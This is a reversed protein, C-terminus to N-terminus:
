VTPLEFGKRQPRSFFSAAQEDGVIKENVADWQLPRGLRCALNSLHCVHMSLINERADAIPRGGERVCTFFNQFHGEVPMGNWLARYDDDTFAKWGGEEYTKGAIRARNVHIKGKTGELLIGNGDKAKDCLIFDTGDSFKMDLHFTIPTNFINEKVPYGDRYDTLFTVNSPAYSVPMQEPTQRNLIWLASDVHHAGWDTVRGGSYQFWWRFMIHCNSYHPIPAKTFPNKDDASAMYDVWPAQGLWLNWDLSEPVEARSLEPSTRGQDVICTTRFVDGLLGKRVMLAATAFQNRQSRQQTGVQFVKGYKEVARRILLNEELTLTLPKQCFVHKGSQMAEISIKTHWHDPTSIGVADIDDRELIKRYDTYADPEQWKGDVKRGIRGAIARALGYKKDVDCIAVIDSLGNFAYADGLGMMGLGIYGTRIRESVSQGLAPRALYQPLFAALGLASSAKLFHRRTTKM